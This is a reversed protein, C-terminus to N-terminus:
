GGFGLATALPITDYVREIYVGKPIRTGANNAIASKYQIWYLQHGQKSIGSIGGISLGTLNEQCAFHYQVETPQDTGEQGTAGLFLVEGPAFTLFTDSNTRGTWRALNKIQPLTIIGQPHKFTATLKLVPIVVDAGEPDKDPGSVGIAQKHDNVSTGPGFAAITEKSATIHVTGGTTDFSLSYSGTEHKTEGYPVTIEYQKYGLPEVQLDQRYLFAGSPHAYLGPTAALVYAHVIANDQEGDALFKLTVALPNYTSQRSLPREILRLSM